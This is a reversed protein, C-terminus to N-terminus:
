QLNGVAPQVLTSVPVITYGSRLLADLLVDVYLFLYDGGDPMAGLHIPIVSGPKVQNMIREIIQPSSEGTLGLRRAEDRSMWDLPDIDRSVTRYGAQLAAQEIAATGRYFPPHWFLALEAGSAQYYEDENRALGRAIYDDDIRYRTDLLDIPAYFLSAAEHGSLAICRASEPNRRIFDGNLFFTARVGFRNLAELVVSLGTDDDYLDFCLAVDRQGSQSFAPLPLLAATGTSATNRIMPINEYPFGPQKELYVRYRGSVQSALRVRPNNVITWPNTGDSAYWVSGNRALIRGAAADEFGYEDAGSLCILKRGGSSDVREILSNGAAIYERNNIWVCALANGARPQGPLPAWSTYDLLITGQKGWALVKSGDPSLAYNSNGQTDLPSFKPAQETDETLRWAFSVPGDKQPVCAIVTLSGSSPWLVSIGCAGSPLKIYPLTTDASSGDPSSGASGGGSVDLPCYFINKEGLCLVLSSSDPAMWFSDFDPDFNMPLKGAVAGTELFDSYVSRVFVGPGAVSYLTNGKVYFFDGRRGWCVSSIKGEGICRYQEAVPSVIALSYYYLKGAKCYVFVRSDPSWSAPFGRGPREIQGSIVKRTGSSTDVLVLDGYAPSKPEILLLWAGDSSVSLLDERGGSPINGTVFSPFGPFPAPMGGALPVLAAGFVSRVLLSRGNDALDIKGPFVTIQQVARDTLRSMFVASQTDSGAADGAISAHFLLRNDGSLDLGQFNVGAFVPCLSFIGALVGFLFSKM